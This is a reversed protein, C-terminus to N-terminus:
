PFLRELELPPSTVDGMEIYLRHWVAFSLVSWLQRAYYLRSREFGSVMTDVANRNFYLGNCVPSSEIIHPIAEGLSERVWSDMPVIFPQKKRTTIEPPLLDSFAKRLIYKETTGYLKLGSPIRFSYEVLNHDLFPVRGELAHAMMMADIKHLLFYPLRRELDILIQQDLVSGSAQTNFYPQIYPIYGEQATETDHLGKSFLASKEEDSFFTRLKVFSTTREEVTDLYQLFRERGKEGLSSSYQFLRDLLADPAASILRPIVTRRLTSPIRRLYRDGFCMVKYQMYGGFLEDAGEGTLIVTVHERTLESILYQALITPDSVPNDLHWIATPLLNFADPEAVLVRHDTDFRDAVIQAFRSENIPEEAEFEVAFTRVPEDLMGSMLGVIISSDLGGSLYAGLPVESMLRLKVADTLLQRVNKIIAPRADHSTVFADRTNWYRGKDKIIGGKLILYQGPPVEHVGSFMTETLPVYRFTMFHALAKTNVNRGIEEHQLLAKIESAFLSRDGDVCYYLPKIGLRDRALFLEQAKADWVSFAFMGNLRRPLDIGYEEYGHALVETDSETSFSHGRRELEARISRFNYIEGNLCVVVSGDENPIPQRGGKLDIISLRRHGLSVNDDIHVGFDDPGRHALASTM